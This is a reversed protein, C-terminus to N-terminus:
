NFEALRELIQPYFIMDTPIKKIFEKIDKEKKVGRFDSTCFNKIFFGDQILIM